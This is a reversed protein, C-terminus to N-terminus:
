GIAPLSAAAVAQGVRRLREDPLHLQIREALEPFEMRLVEQAGELIVPGGKGSTVRGLILLHDIEYLDAYYAIAYGMWTGITQFIKQARSDGDNHLGQVAKLKETAGLEPDPEFEIGAKPALRIVAEQSFYQVGCGYDGSWEDVPARPNFDVPVFCVENLWGTIDGGSTVYGGAESSGLAIGLVSNEELSMSGALATVDGDNAVELPVGGWAHGVRIFMERVEAEFLDKPVGRFLSAVMVRNDIYIGASSVGIADVRPIGTSEQRPMHAAAMHMASMVHHYHYNPDSREKPNWVVEGEFVSEGNIVASTKWDSAGADFGIRCGDLHRGIAVSQERAEPVGGADCVEVTFDQDYVDSGMFDEDFARLGGPSYAEKIYQGVQTPGGIVVRWGGRAWLLTKVLREVYPFNAKAGDSEPDFIETEFRSILGGGRELAIVLPVGRGSEAVAQRFARNALSGPRFDEDLVPVVRPIPLEWSM